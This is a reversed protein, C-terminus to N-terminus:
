SAQLFAAISSYSRSDDKYADENQEGGGGGFEDCPHRHLSPCKKMKGKRMGDGM